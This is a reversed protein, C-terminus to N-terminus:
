TIYADQGPTISLAALRGAAAAVDEQDLFHRRDLEVVCEPTGDPLRPIQIKGFRALWEADRAGLMSRCSVVSDVGEMNKTPAFQEERRGELILTREALPLADFIFSELKVANPKDPDIRAGDPGIHKVKKDARHWPLRLREGVTMREVFARSIVHIAPSGALFVLRGEVDTREALEAPLDSYEIITLRGKSVCFNGLKEYPGTKPLMISSMESRELDHLGIFLPDVVPALPNDIQFYSIHEIGRRRMDELAGSRRMALLSGGHGDPALALSHKEELLLKGDFGIAPMSGQVFFTVGSVDMGFYENERFFGRTASDNMVSTMIYWPIQHGYKESARQIVEAFYQFFSKGRVPTIQFTGKPGDYGLRTGQGGAVTFAAVSGKQLLEVGRARADTYKQLQRTDKTELPCYTAPALDDPLTTEPRRRVYADTLRSIEEWDITSLQGALCARRAEDLENWYRLLHEQGHRRLLASLKAEM